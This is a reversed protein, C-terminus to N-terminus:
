KRIWTMPNFLNFKKPEAKQMNTQPASRLDQTKTKKDTVVEMGARGANGTGIIKNKIAPVTTALDQEVQNLPLVPGQKGSLIFGLNSVLTKNMDTAPTAMLEAFDNPNKVKTMDMVRNVKSSVQAADFDDILASDQGKNLGLMKSVDDPINLWTNAKTRYFMGGDPKNTHFMDGPQAGNIGKGRLKAPDFGDVAEPNLASFKFIRNGNIDQGPNQKFIVGGFNIPTGDNRGNVYVNGGNINFQDTEGVRGYSSNAWAPPAGTPVVDMELVKSDAGMKYYLDFGGPQSPDNYSDLMDQYTDREDQMKNIADIMDTRKSYSDGRAEMLQYQTTANNIQQNLYATTGELYAGPDQIGVKQAYTKANAIEKKADIGGSGYSQLTEASNLWGAVSTKANWAQAETGAYPLADMVSQAASRYTEPSDPSLKVQLQARDLARDLETYSSGGTKFSPLSKIVGSPM